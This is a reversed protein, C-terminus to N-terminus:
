QWMGLRKKDKRAEKNNEVETDRERAIERRKEAEVRKFQTRQGRGQKLDEEEVAARTEDAM